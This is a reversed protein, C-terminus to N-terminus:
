IISLEDFFLSFYLQDLTQHIGLFGGFLVALFSIVGLVGCSDYIMFSIQRSLAISLICLIQFTFHLQLIGCFPSTLYFVGFIDYCMLM